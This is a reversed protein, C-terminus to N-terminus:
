VLVVMAELGVKIEEVNEVKMDVVNVKELGGKEVVVKGVVVLGM